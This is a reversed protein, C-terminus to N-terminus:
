LKKVSGCLPMLGWSKFIDAFGSDDSWSRNIGNESHSTEGEAGERYMIRKSIEIQAMCETNSLEVTDVYETLGYLRNRLITEALCLTRLLSDDSRTNYPAELGAKLLALKETNNM